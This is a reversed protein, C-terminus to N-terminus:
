HVVVTQMTLQLVADYSPAAFAANVYRKAAEPHGARKLASSVRGIIAFVNGDRGTLNVEVDPFQVSGDWGQDDLENEIIGIGVEM